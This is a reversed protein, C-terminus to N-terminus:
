TALQDNGHAGDLDAEMAIERDAGSMWAQETGEDLMEAAAHVAADELGAM